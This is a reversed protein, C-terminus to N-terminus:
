DETAPHYRPPTYHYAAGLRNYFNIQAIGFSLIAVEAETFHTHIAAYADDEIEHGVLETLLEAWALVAMERDDYIGAERWVPIMELKHPDMGIARANNLHIGLCQACGNMQSARIKALELYEKSFGAANIARGMEASAEYVGPALRAIEDFEKRAFRSRM